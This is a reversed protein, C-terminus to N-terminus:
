RLKKPKRWGRPTLKKVLWFAKQYSSRREFQAEFEYCDCIMGDEGTFWDISQNIWM